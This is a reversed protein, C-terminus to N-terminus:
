ANESADSLLGMYLVAVGVRMEDEGIWQKLLLPVHHTTLYTNIATM